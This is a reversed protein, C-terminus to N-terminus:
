SPVRGQSADPGASYQSLCAGDTQGRCILMQPGLYNSGRPEDICVGNKRGRSEWGQILWAIRRPGLILVPHGQFSQPPPGGGSQNGATPISLAVEQKPVNKCNRSGRVVLSMKRLGLISPQARVVAMTGSANAAVVCVDVRRHCSWPRIVVNEDPLEEEPDEGRRPLALRSTKRCVSRDVITKRPWQEVSSWLLASPGEKGRSKALTAEVEMHASMAPKRSVTFSKSRRRVVTSSWTADSDSCSVSNCDRRAFTVSKSSLLRLSLTRRKPM